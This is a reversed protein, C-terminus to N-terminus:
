WKAEARDETAYLYGGGYYAMVREEELLTVQHPNAIMPVAAFQQSTISVVDVRRVRYHVKAMNIPLLVHRHDDTVALEVELYRVMMESHDVWVDVVTGATIKDAGIVAMGRPDPDRTNLSLEHQVRLPVIRPHGEMTVDVEDKREAWSGPGVGALMPDGDPKFPSGYPRRTQISRPERKDGNDRPADVTTGDALLFTKPAPMPPLTYVDKVYPNESLLPYGERKDERRLYIILAFFFIWFVYLVVQAVDMQATFAGQPM